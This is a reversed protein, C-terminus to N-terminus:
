RRSPRGCRVLLSGRTRRAGLLRRLEHRARDLERGATAAHRAGTAAIWPERRIDNCRPRYRYPENCSAEGTEQRPGRVSKATGYHAGSRAAGKRVAAVNRDVNTADIGGVIVCDVGPAFAAFRLAFEDWNAPTIGLSERVMTFRRRYEDHVPDGSFAGVWPRGALSRKAITGIGRAQAQQLLTLSQQDCLNVSAQVGGFQGSALAYQLPADDGSYAAVRIKGEARCRALAHTVEGAELISSAAPTCICSISSTPRCGRARRTLAM